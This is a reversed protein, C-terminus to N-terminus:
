TGRQNGFIHIHLRPCYRWGRHICQAALWQEFAQPPTTIGEPMLMVDAPQWGSLQSLISEIEALDDEGREQTVVFKLQREPYRDLLKQLAAFNLRREEHRQRWTGQPDRPDPADSTGPTSTSLKPSISMLDCPLDRFITGATEVTIHRGRKHLMAALPEVQPFMMPEGGTLVVHTSAAAARTVLEDLRVPSGEPEWSAYPTDCWVCRLNCGAVRIFFSPMGTLKGEGQISLFTESIPIVAAARAPETSAVSLAHTRVDGRDGAAHAETSPNQSTV